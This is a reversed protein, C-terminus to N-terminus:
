MKTTDARLKTILADKELLQSNIKSNENDQFEM